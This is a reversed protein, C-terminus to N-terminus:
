RGKAGRRLLVAGVTQLVIVVDFWITWNRVYYQDLIVRESFSIENRGGAQWLGTIGPKVKIVSFYQTGMDDKESYLYPRPGVLSMESKLVNVFQPFEDLSTSRLFRGVRTIRPDNQLKKTSLYEERVAPDKAMMDQLVQEANRVMTRFKFIFIPHGGAGIRRQTFIVPGGDELKILIFAVVYIPILLAFGVLGFGIDILRKIIQNPRFYLGQSSHITLIQNFDQISASFSLLRHLNDPIIRISPAKMELRLMAYQLDEASARPLAVVIEDLTASKLLPVAEDVSPSRLVVESMAFSTGQIIAEFQRGHPSDGVIAIRNRHWHYRFAFWRVIKHLIPVLFLFVVLNITVSTKITKIEFVYLLIHIFIAAVFTSVLIAKLQNFFLKPKLSYVQNWAFTALVIAIPLALSFLDGSKAISALNDQMGLASLVGNTVFYALLFLLVDLVVMVFVLSWKKIM